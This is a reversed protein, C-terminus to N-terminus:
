QKLDEIETVKVGTEQKKVSTLNKFGCFMEPSECCGLKAANEQVVSSFQRVAGKVRGGEERCCLASAVQGARTAHNQRRVPRLPVALPLVAAPPNM